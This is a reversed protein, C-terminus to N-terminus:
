LNVTLENTGMHVRKFDYEKEKGAVPIEKEERPYSTILKLTLDIRNISEGWLSEM